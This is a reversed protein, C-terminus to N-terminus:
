SWPTEKRQVKFLFAVKSKIQQNYVRQATEYIIRRRQMTPKEYRRKLHVERSMGESGMVKMLSRYAADVGAEGIM